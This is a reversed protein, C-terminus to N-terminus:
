LLLAVYQAKSELHVWISDNPPGQGNDNNNNDDNDDNIDDDNNEHYTVIMVLIMRTKIRMSKDKGKIIM